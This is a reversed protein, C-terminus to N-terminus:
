TSRLHSWLTHREGIRAHPDRTSCNFSDSGRACHFTLIETQYRLFEAVLDSCVVSEIYLIRFQETIEAYVEEATKDMISNALGYGQISAPDIGWVSDKSKVKTNVM